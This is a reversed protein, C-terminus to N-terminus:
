EQEVARQKNARQITGSTAAVGPKHYWVHPDSVASNRVESPLLLKICKLTNNIRRLRDGSM